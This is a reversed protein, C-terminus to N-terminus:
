EYWIEIRYGDPDSAFIYPERPVFEGQQLIKGGARVAIAAAEIDEPKRLRFGFHTVGKMEGAKSADEEFSLIDHSGPTQAQITGPERYVENAGFVDKYFRLAREVDRVALGIHTLGYTGIM